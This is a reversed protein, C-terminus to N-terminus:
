NDLYKRLMIKLLIISDFILIQLSASCYNGLKVVSNDVGLGGCFHNSGLINSLYIKM